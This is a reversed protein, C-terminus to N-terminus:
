HGAGAGAAAGDWLKRGLPAKQDEAIHAVLGAARSIIMFGRMIKAPVNIDLLAASIAGPANITIHRGAKEDLVRSLLRLAAIHPGAAGVAEATRFIAAPRPDDPKHHPQGFGDVPQKVARYRAVIEAAKAEGAAGAAVIEELLPATKEVTGVFQDGVGLLGAAVAGQMSEPAGMYTLRTVTAGPSFGHEAIAVLCADVVAIQAKSPKTGLILYFLFETFNVKGILEDCLNRDRIWIDTENFSCLPKGQDEPM